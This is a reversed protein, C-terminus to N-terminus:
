LRDLGQENKIDPMTGLPMLKCWGIKNMTNFLPSNQNLEYDKPMPISVKIKDLGGFLTLYKRLKDAKNYLKDSQNGIFVSLKDLVSPLAKEQIVIDVLSLERVQIRNEIESGKNDTVKYTLNEIENIIKEKTEPRSEMLCLVHM